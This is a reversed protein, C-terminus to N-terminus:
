EPAGEEASVEVQYFVTYRLCKRFILDEAENMSLALVSNFCCGISFLNDGLMLERIRQAVQDRESETSAWVDIQVVVFSWESKTSGDFGDGLGSVEGVDSVDTVTVSPLVPHQGFQWGKYVPVDGAADTGLLTSLTVDAVFVQVLYDKIEETSTL